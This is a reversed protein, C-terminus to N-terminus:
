DTVNINVNNSSLNNVLLSANVVMSEDIDQIISKVKELTSDGMYMEASSSVVFANADDDGVDVDQNGFVDNYDYM